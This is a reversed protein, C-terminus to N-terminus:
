GIMELVPRWYLGTTVPNVAVFGPHITSTASYLYSRGIVGTGPLREMGVNDSNIGTVANNAPSHSLAIDLKDFNSGRQSPPTVTFLKYMLDNWESGTLDLTTDSSDSTYIGTSAGTVAKTATNAAAFNTTLDFGPPLMTMLRVKFLSGNIAITKLQNTATQTNYERPGIGDVGYVLGALYLNNWTVAGFTRQPVFLTKGKHSFKMWKQDTEVTRNSLGAPSFTDIIRDYSTFDGATVLGYYGINIDGAVLAQPGPGSYNVAYGRVNSTLIKESGKYVEFVYYFSDGQTVNNDLYETANGALTAVKAPLQTPIIPNVSRYVNIGDARTNKNDFAVRIQM